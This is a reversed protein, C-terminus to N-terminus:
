KKCMRGKAQIYIYAFIREPAFPAKACLFGAYIRSFPVSFNEEIICIYLFDMTSKNAKAYIANICIYM